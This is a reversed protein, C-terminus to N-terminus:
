HVMAQMLVYMKQFVIIYNIFNKWFLMFDAIDSRSQSVYYSFVIGKVVLIQTNYAAHMHTGLGAYYDAKLAM